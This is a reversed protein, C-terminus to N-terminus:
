NENAKELLNNILSYDLYEHNDNVEGEGIYEEVKVFDNSLEKVSLFTSYPDNSKQFIHIPFRVEDIKSKLDLGINKAYTYPVGVFICFKPKRKFEPFNNLTLVTGISKAFIAYPEDKSNILELVRKGEMTVDVKDGQGKWNEYELIECEFRSGINAKVQYIWERNKFSQGSLLILRM